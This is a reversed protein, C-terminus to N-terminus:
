YSLVVSNLIQVFLPKLEEYNDGNYKFEITFLQRLNGDIPNGMFSFGGSIINNPFLYENISVPGAPYNETVSKIVKIIEGGGHGGGPNIKLSGVDINGIKIAFTTVVGKSNVEWNDPYNFKWRLPYGSSPKRIPYGSYQNWGSPILLPSSSPSTPPLSIKLQNQPQFNSFILQVILSIGIVFIVVILINRTKSISLNKKILNKKKSM